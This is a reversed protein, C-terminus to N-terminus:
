CFLLVSMDVELVGALFLVLVSAGANKIYFIVDASLYHIELLCMFILVVMILMLAAAGGDYFIIVQVQLIMVLLM